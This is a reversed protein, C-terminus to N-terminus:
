GLFVLAKNHHFVKRHFVKESMLDLLDQNLAFTCNKDDWYANVIELMTNHSKLVSRLQPHNQTSKGLNKLVTRGCFM